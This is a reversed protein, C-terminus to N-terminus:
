QDPNGPRGSRDRYNECTGFCGTCGTPLEVCTATTSHACPLEAMSLASRRRCPLSRPNHPHEFAAGLGPWWAWPPGWQRLRPRCKLTLEYHISWFGHGINLLLGFIFCRNCNRSMDVYTRIYIWVYIIFNM